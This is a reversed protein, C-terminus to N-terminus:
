AAGSPWPTLEHQVRPGPPSNMSCGHALPHNMFGSTKIEVM